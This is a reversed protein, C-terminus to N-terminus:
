DYTKLEISFGEPDVIFISTGTGRAGQLTLPGKIQVNHEELRKMLVKWNNGAYALCVHNAKGPADILNGLEKWMKPPFFHIINHSNIRASPFRATGEKWEEYNEPTLGLIETYFKVCVDPSEVNLTLHDIEINM